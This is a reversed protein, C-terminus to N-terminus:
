FCTYLFIPTQYPAYNTQIGLSTDLFTVFHIETSSVCGWAYGCSRRQFIEGENIEDCRYFDPTQWVQVIPLLLCIVMLIVVKKRWGHRIVFRVLVIDLMISLLIYLTNQLDARYLIRFPILLLITLVSFIIWYRRANYPQEKRKQKM